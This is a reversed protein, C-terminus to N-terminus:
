RRDMNARRKWLRVTVISPQTYGAPDSLEGVARRSLVTNTTLHGGVYGDPLQGLDLFCRMTSIGPEPFDRKVTVCEGKGVFTAGSLVGEAHFTITAPDPTAGFCVHMNGVVEGASNVMRADQPRTQISRFTFLDEFLARGVGIKEAGCFATLTIRAERVARAVYIQEIDSAGTQDQSWVPVPFAAMVVVLILSRLIRIM